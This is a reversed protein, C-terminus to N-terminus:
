HKTLAGRGERHREVRQVLDADSDAGEAHAEPMHRAGIGFRMSGNLVNSKSGDTIEPPVEIVRENEEPISGLSHWGCPQM